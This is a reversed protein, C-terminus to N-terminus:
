SCSFWLNLNVAVDGLPWHTLDHTSIAKSVLFQSMLLLPVSRTRALYDQRLVANCHRWSPHSPTEFWWGRSQKSLRKNRHLDFFVGFSRTVPRQAPFDDTVSSNGWLPDTARFINWKIVDHSPNFLLITFTVWDNVDTWPYNQTHAWGILSSTVKYRRRENASNM